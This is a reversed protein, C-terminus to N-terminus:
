LGRETLEKEIEAREPNRKTKQTTTKVTPRNSLFFHRIEKYRPLTANIRELDQAFKKELDERTLKNQALYQDSYVVKVWLSIDGCWIRSFVMSEEVYPLFNILTEIEEPFVKKGSKLVIVNKKRGTIWLYNDKDFYGLDGTHFWGDESIVERTAEEDGSYGMMVNDGRVCLEGIGNEDPDDIRTEINPLALGCSGPKVHGVYESAVTPACESLGYGQVTLIGFENFGRSVEPNIPAAGNVIFRLHGGLQDIITSFVRRRVNTGIGLKDSADCFKRAIQVQMLKGQKEATKMIRKYITEVLLPVTLLVTVKYERLNETIHKLGDTFAISMGQSLFTLVGGMGYCHHLPLIMLSVDQPTFEEVLNMGYNVSMMNKQSLMVAKSRSTTGSTFLLCALAERDIPRETYGKYGELFLEEGRIILDVMSLGNEPAFDLGIVYELDTRGEDFIEKVIGYRKKDCFIAKAGSRQLMSELEDKQILRDLPVIVGLGCGVAFYSLCWKYSNDGILAIKEDALGIDCLASGVCNIEYFLKKYTTYIFQPAGSEDKTKTIFAVRYGYKESSTKLLDRLDTFERFERALARNRLPYGTYFNKVYKRKKDM